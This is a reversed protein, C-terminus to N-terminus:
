SNRRRLTSELGTSISDGLGLGKARAGPLRSSPTRQSQQQNIQSNPAFSQQLTKVSSPYLNVDAKTELLRQLQIRQQYNLTKKQQGLTDIAKEKIAQHIEPYVNKLVEIEEPSVHGGKINQLITQPNNVAQAYRNFTDIESTPIQYKVLPNVDPQKPIKSQLFNLANLTKDRLQMATQPAAAGMSGLSNNLHEKVNDIQQIQNNLKDAKQQYSENKNGGTLPIASISAGKRSVNMMGNVSEDVVKNLSGAHKELQSLVVLAAKDGYDTLLKRGILGAVAGPAGGIAAGGTGAIWATPGFINNAGKEIQKTALKSIDSAGAYAKKAANYDALAKPDTTEIMEQIREEVAKRGKALANTFSNDAKMGTLTLDKSNYIVDDLQKRVNWLDKASMDIYSTKGTVPDISTFEDRLKGLYSNLRDKGAFDISNLDNRAVDMQKLFDKSDTLSQVQDLSNNIADGAKSKLDNARNLTEDPNLDKIADLGYSKKSANSFDDAFNGVSLDDGSAMARLADKINEAKSENNAIIGFDKKSTGLVRNTFYTELREGNDGVLSSLKEAGTKIGQGLVEAGGGLAGGLGLGLLGGKGANAMLAEATLPKNQIVSEDIAQGGGYLAGEAASGLGLQTAKSVAAEALPSIAKPALSGALSGAGEALPAALSSVGKGIAGVLGAPTYQLAQAAASEGGSLVAPLVAGAINSVTSTIPNQRNLAAQTEPSVLGTKDLALGAGGLTLGNAASLAAAQAQGALGGYQAKEQAAAADQPTFFTSGTALANTLDNGSVQYPKGEITKLDYTSNADPVVKGSLIPQIAQNSDPLSNLDVLQNTATDLVRM